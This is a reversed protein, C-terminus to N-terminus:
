RDEDVEFVQGQTELATAVLEVDFADEFTEDLLTLDDGLLGVGVPVPEARVGGGQVLRGTGRERSQSARDAGGAVLLNGFLRQRQFLGRRDGAGPRQDMTKGHQKQIPAQPIDQMPQGLTGVRLRQQIRHAVALQLLWIATPTAGQTCQLQTAEPVAGPPAVVIPGELPLLAGALLGASVQAKVSGIQTM